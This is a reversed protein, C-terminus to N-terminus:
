CAFTWHMQTRAHILPLWLTFYCIARGFLISRNIPLSRSLERRRLRMPYSVCCRAAVNVYVFLINLFIVCMLLRPLPSDLLFLLVM